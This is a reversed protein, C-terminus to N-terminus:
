EIWRTEGIGTLQAKLVKNLVYNRKASANFFVVVEKIIGIANRISSVASSRSLSLNLAHNFCPCHSANKAKKQIEVVTGYNNSVMIACGDTGIGVSDLLNLGMEELLSLVLQGVVKGNVTPEKEATSPEFTAHHVDVFGIFDERRHNDFAYCLAISLQSSHSVDFIISYYRASKVRELIVGIVEKACCDILQNQTTKSIYTANKGSTKLQEKLKSNGSEARYRLLERFNGENSLPMDDLSLSGDDRNSRLPINQRGLFIISELIPKLRERNETVQKM